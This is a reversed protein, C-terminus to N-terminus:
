KNTRVKFQLATGGGTFDLSWSEASNEPVFLFHIDSRDESAKQLCSLLLVYQRTAEKPGTTSDHQCCVCSGCSSKHVAGSFTLFSVPSLILLVPYGFELMSSSSESTFELLFLLGEASAYLLMWARHESSCQGWGTKLGSAAWLSCVDPIKSPVSLLLFGCLQVCPLPQFFPLMTRPPLLVM